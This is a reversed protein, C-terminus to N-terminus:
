ERGKYGVNFVLKKDAGGGLPEIDVLNGREVTSTKGVELAMGMSGM